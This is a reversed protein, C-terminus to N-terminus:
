PAKRRNAEAALAHLEAIEESTLDHNPTAHGIFNVGECDWVLLIYKKLLERYDISGARRPRFEVVLANKGENVSHHREYEFGLPLPPLTPFASRILGAYQESDFLAQDVGDPATLRPTEVLIIKM